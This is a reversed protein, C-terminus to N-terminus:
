GSFSVPLPKSRSFPSSKWSESPEAYLDDPRSNVTDHSLPENQKSTTALFSLADNSLQLGLPSQQPQLPPVAASLHTSLHSNSGPLQMSKLRTAESSLSLSDQRVCYQLKASSLYATSTQPPGRESSADHGSPHNLTGDGTSGRKPVSTSSSCEEHLSHEGRLMSDKRGIDKALPHDNVEGFEKDGQDRGNPLSGNARPKTLLIETMHAQKKDREDPRAAQQKPLCPTHDDKSAESLDDQSGSKGKHLNTQPNSSYHVLVFPYM